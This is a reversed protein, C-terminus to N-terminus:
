QTRAYRAGLGYRHSKTDRFSEEIQMRKKYYNIIPVTKYELPLNTALIWPERASRSYYCNGANYSGPLKGTRKKNNVIHNKKTVIRCPHDHTTTIAADNYCKAKIEIKEMFEKTNLWNGDIKISKGQRIRTLWYWNYSEIERLWDEGFGADMIILVKKDIPICKSLQSLFKEARGKLEGASFVDRYIPLSRGKSAIEASLMQVDYSDQIYCLDIIIPTSKEQSVYQFLYSSLGSYIYNLENHLHKNSELRDVKKIKHKINATSNINRGIATLSLNQSKQLGYAVSMVADLRDNHVESCVKNLHDHLLKNALM